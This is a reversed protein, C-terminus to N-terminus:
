QDGRLENISHCPWAPASKEINRLINSWRLCRGNKSPVDGGKVCLSSLGYGVYATEVRWLKECSQHVYTLRIFCRKICSRVVSICYGPSNGSDYILGNAWLLGQDEYRSM